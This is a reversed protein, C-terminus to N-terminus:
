RKAKYFLYHGIQEVDFDYGDLYGMKEFDKYYIVYNCSEDIATDEFLYDNFIIDKYVFPHDDDAKFENPPVCYTAQYYVYHKLFYTTGELEHLEEPVIDAMLKTESAFKDYEVFYFYSFHAFSVFYVIALLLVAIKKAKESKLMQYFNLMAYIAFVIYTFYIACQQYVDRGESLLSIVFLISVAWFLLFNQPKFEKTKISIVFDRIIFIFGLVIFVSTPYLLYGCPVNYISGNLGKFIYILSCTLNFVINSISFSFEGNRATEFRTFTVGLIQFEEWGLINVMQVILLPLGLVIAPAVFALIEKLTVKKFAILYVLSLVLFVPIMLYSLAYTYFTLGCVFGTVVYWKINHTDLSKLFCYLFATSFGLMLNCDLAMKSIITFYPTVTYLVIYILNIKKNKFINDVILYGFVLVLISNLVAPLRIAFLSEGFIKCSIFALYAYAPSQEGWINAFLVPWSNEKQDIGWNLLCRVNYWLGAEDVNLATPLTTLRYIHLFIAFIGLISIAIYYLKKNKTM